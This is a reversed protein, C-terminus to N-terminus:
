ISNLVQPSWDVSKIAREVIDTARDVQRDIIVNHRKISM